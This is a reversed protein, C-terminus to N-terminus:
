HKREMLEWIVRVLQAKTIHRNFTTVIERANLGHNIGSAIKEHIANMQEPTMNLDSKQNQSSTVIKPLFTLPIPSTSWTNNTHKFHGEWWFDTDNVYLQVCDKRADTEYVFVRPEKSEKKPLKDINRYSLTTGKNLDNDELNLETWGLEPSYDYTNVTDRFGAKKSLQFIRKIDKDSLEIQAANVNYDADGPIHVRVLIKFM